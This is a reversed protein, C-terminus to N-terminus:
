DKADNLAKMRLKLLELADASMDPGAYDYAYGKDTKSISMLASDKADFDQSLYLPIGTRIMKLDFESPVLSSRKCMVARIPKGDVETMHPKAGFVSFIFDGAPMFTAIQASDEAADSEVSQQVVIECNAINDDALAPISVLGALLVFPIAYKL